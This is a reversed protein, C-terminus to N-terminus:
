KDVNEDKNESKLSDKSKFNAGFVMKETTPGAGLISTNKDSFKVAKKVKRPDFKNQRKLRVIQNRAERMSSKKTIKSNEASYAHLHKPDEKKHGMNYHVSLIPAVFNEQETRRALEVKKKQTNNKTNIVKFFKKGDQGSNGKIVEKEIKIVKMKKDPPGEKPIVDKSEDITCNKIDNLVKQRYLLKLAHLISSDITFVPVAEEVNSKLLKSGYDHFSNYHDDSDFLPCLDSKVPEMTQHLDISQIFASMVSPEEFQFLQNYHSQFQNEIIGSEPISASKEVNLNMKDGDMNDSCTNIHDLNQKLFKTAAKCQSQGAENFGESQGPDNLSNLQSQRCDIQPSNVDMDTDAYCGPLKEVSDTEGVSGSYEKGVSRSYEVTLDQMIEGDLNITEAEIEVDILKPDASMPKSCSNILIQDSTPTIENKSISKPILNVTTKLKRGGNKGSFPTDRRAGHIKSTISRTVRIESHLNHIKDVATVGGRNGKGTYWNKQARLDKLKGIDRTNDKFSGKDYHIRTSIILDKNDKRDQWYPKTRFNCWVDKLDEENFQMSNGYARFNPSDTGPGITKSKRKSKGAQMHGKYLKAMNGWLGTDTRWGALVVIWRRDRWFQLTGLPSLHVLGSGWIGFFACVVWGM